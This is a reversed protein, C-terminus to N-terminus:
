GGGETEAKKKKDKKGKKAQEHEVSGLFSSFREVALSGPAPMDVRM